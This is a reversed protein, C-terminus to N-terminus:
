RCKTSDQPRDIYTLIGYMSGVPVTYPYGEGNWQADDHSRMNLANNCLQGGRLVRLSWAIVKSVLAKKHITLSQDKCVRFVVFRNGKCFSPPLVRLEKWCAMKESTINAKKQNHSSYILGSSKLFSENIVPRIWRPAASIFPSLGNLIWCQDWAVAFTSHVDNSMMKGWRNGWRSKEWGQM